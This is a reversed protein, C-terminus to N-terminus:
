LFVVNSVILKDNEGKENIYQLYFEGINKNNYTVYGQTVKEVVLVPHSVRHTQKVPRGTDPCGEGLGAREAVLQPVVLPRPRGVVDADPADLGCGIVHGSVEVGVPVLIVRGLHLRVAQLLRAEYLQLSVTYAM